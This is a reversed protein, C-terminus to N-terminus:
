YKKIFKTLEEKLLENGKMSFGAHKQANKVLHYQMNKKIIKETCGAEWFQCPIIANENESCKTFHEELQCKPFDKMCFKCKAKSFLCNENHKIQDKRIIKTKCGNQCEIESYECIKMHENLNEFEGKWKCLGSNLPANPCYIILCLMINKLTIALNRMHFNDFSNKCTPCKNAQADWSELCSKCFIKGCQPHDVANDPYPISFCIPCVFLEAIKRNKFRDLEFTKKINVCTTTHAPELSGPNPIFNPVARYDSIIDEYGLVNWQLRSKQEEQMPYDFAQKLQRNYSLDPPLRATEPRCHNCIEYECQACNFHSYESPQTKRCIECKYIKDPNDLMSWMLIHGNKCHTLNTEPYKLGTFIQPADPYPNVDHSICKACTKAKCISCKWYGYLMSYKKTCQECNYLSETINKPLKYTWKIFHGNGCTAIRRKQKFLLHIPYYEKNNVFEDCKSCWISLNRLSIHISHGTKLEHQRTHMNLYKCCGVYGCELCVWNDFNEGCEM